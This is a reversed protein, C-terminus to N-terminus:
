DFSPNKKVSLIILLAFEYSVADGETRIKIRATIFFITARSIDDELSLQMAERSNNSAKKRATLFKNTRFHRLQIKQGYHITSGGSDIIKNIIEQNSANEAAARNQFSPAPYKFM